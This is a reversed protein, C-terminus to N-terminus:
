CDTTVSAITLKAIYDLLGVIVARKKDLNVMIFDVMNNYQQDQGPKVVSKSDTSTPSTKSM